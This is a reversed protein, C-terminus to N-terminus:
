LTGLFSIDDHGSVFAIATSGAAFTMQQDFRVEEIQQPLRPQQISVPVSCSPGNFFCKRVEFLRTPTQEDDSTNTSARKEVGLLPTRDVGSPGVVTDAHLGAVFLTLL